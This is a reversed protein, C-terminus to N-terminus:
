LPDTQLQPMQLLKVYVRRCCQCPCCSPSPLANQRTTRSIRACLPPQMRVSDRGCSSKDINGPQSREADDIAMM